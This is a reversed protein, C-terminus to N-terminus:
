VPSTLFLEISRQRLTKVVVDNITDGRDVSDFFLRANEFYERYIPAFEDRGLKKVLRGQHKVFEGVRRPGAVADFRTLYDRYEKELDFAESM